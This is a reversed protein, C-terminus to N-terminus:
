VGALGEGILFTASFVTFCVTVSLTIVNAVSRQRLFVYTVLNIIAAITVVLVGIFPMVWTDTIPASERFLTTILPLVLWTLFAVIAWWM